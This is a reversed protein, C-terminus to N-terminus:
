TAWDPVGPAAVLQTYHDAPRDEGVLPGEYHLADWTRPDQYWGLLTLDRLGRYAQRPLTGMTALRELM